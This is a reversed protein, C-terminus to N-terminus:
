TMPELYKESNVSLERATIKKHHELNNFPLYDEKFARIDFGEQDITDKILTVMNDISMNSKPSVWEVVEGYIKHAQHAVRQKIISELSKIQLSPGYFLNCFEQEVGTHDSYQKSRKKPNITIGFGLLQVFKDGYKIFHSTEIVYLFSGSM